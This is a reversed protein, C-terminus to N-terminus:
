GDYLKTYHISYSTIVFVMIIPKRSTVTIRINKIPKVLANKTAIDTGSEIASAYMTRGPISKVIFMSTITIVEYLM